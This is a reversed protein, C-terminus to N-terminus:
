VAGHSMRSAVEREVRAADWDPHLEGLQTRLMLRVSEWIGFAIALRETPTKRRLIEVMQPDMVEIQGRDLRVKERGGNVGLRASGADLSL